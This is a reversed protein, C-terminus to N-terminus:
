MAKNWKVLPGSKNKWWKQARHDYCCCCVHMFGTKGSAESIRELFPFCAVSPYLPLLHSPPVSLVLVSCALMTSSTLSFLWGSCRFRLQCYGPKNRDALAGARHGRQYMVITNNSWSLSSPARPQLLLLPHSAQSNEGLRTHEGGPVFSKWFCPHSGAKLPSCHSNPITFIQTHTYKQASTHTSDSSNICEKLRM